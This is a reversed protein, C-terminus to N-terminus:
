EDAWGGAWEVTPKACGVPQHPVSCHEAFGRVRRRPRPHRRNPQERLRRPTSQHRSPAARRVASM